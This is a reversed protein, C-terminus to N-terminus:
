RSRDPLLGRTKRLNYEVYGSLVEQVKPPPPVVFYHSIIAHAIEHGLMGLTLDSFSIYITNKNHFYFSGEDFNPSGRYLKFIERVSSKDNFIKITGHYSYINIGLIDSIELYLGDLTRALIDKQSQDRKRSLDDAQRLYNYNILALLANIDIKKNGYVSFFQTEVILPLTPERAFSLAANCFISLLIILFLSFTRKM